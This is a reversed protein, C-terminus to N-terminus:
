EKEYKDKIVAVKKTLNDTEIKTSSSTKGEKDKEMQLLEEDRRWMPLM